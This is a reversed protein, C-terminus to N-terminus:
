RIAALPAIAAANRGSNRKRKGALQRRNTLDLKGVSRAGGYLRGNADAVM